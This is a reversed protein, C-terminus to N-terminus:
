NSPLFAKNLTNMSILILMIGFMPTLYHAYNFNDHSFTYSIIDGICELYLDLNGTRIAYLTDLLIEVM